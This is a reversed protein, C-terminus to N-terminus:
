VVIQTSFFRKKGLKEGRSGDKERNFISPSVGRAVELAAPTGGSWFAGGRRLLLLPRRRRRKPNTKKEKNKKVTHVIFTHIIHIYM